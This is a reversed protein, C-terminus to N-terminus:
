NIIIWDDSLEGHAWGFMELGHTNSDAIYYVMDETVWLDGHVGADMDGTDHDWLLELGQETVLHLQGGQIPDDVLVLLNNGVEALNSPSSSTIGTAFDSHLWANNGNSVCLEFGYAAVGCDFWLLGNHSIVDVGEGVNQLSSNLESLTMNVPDFSLIGNSNFLIREGIIVPPIHVGADSQLNNTVRELVEGDSRHLQPGFIDSTAIFWYYGNEFVALSNIEGNLINGDIFIGTQTNYILKGNVSSINDYDGTIWTESEAFITIGNQHNLVLDNQHKLLNDNSSVGGSINTEKWTTEGDTSWLQTGIEDTADFWIRDNHEIFGLNAGPSFDVTPSIQVANYDEMKFLLCKDTQFAAFVFLGEHSFGGECPTSFSDGSNPQIDTMMGSTLNQFCIKIRSDVEQSSINNGMEIIVAEPCPGFEGVKSDIFASEGVIGDSGDIGDSGNVGNTGNYGWYGRNGMPGSEGQPGHCVNRIESIEDDDLVQNRDSDIGIQISFGGKECSHTGYIPGMKTLSYNGDEGSEMENLETTNYYAMSSLILSVIVSSVALIKQFRKKKSPKNDAM